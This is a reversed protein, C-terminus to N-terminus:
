NAVKVMAPRIIRDGLAFGKQFVETLVSEDLEDNQEHMVANHRNPDFHEGKEGFQAVGLKQLIDLYSTMIMVVGKKYAEDATQQAVARELNDFVGLFRATTDAQADAYIRDKEKQTRKRFNDYEAALRLYANKQEALEAKLKEMEEDQAKKSEKKAKRGQRTEPNEAPATEPQTAQRVEAAAEQDAQTEAQPATTKEDQM